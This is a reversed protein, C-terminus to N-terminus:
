YITTDAGHQFVISTDPVGVVYTASQQKTNEQVGVQTGIQAMQLASAM